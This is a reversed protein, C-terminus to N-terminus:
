CVRLILSMLNWVNEIGSSRIMLITFLPIEVSIALSSTLNSCVLKPKETKFNYGNFM